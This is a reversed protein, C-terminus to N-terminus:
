CTQPLGTVARLGVQPAIAAIAVVPEQLEGIVRLHALEQRIRSEECTRRPIVGDCLRHRVCERFLDALEANSLGQLKLAELIARRLNNANRKGTAILSDTLEILLQHFLGIDGDLMEEGDREAKSRKGSVMANANRGMDNNGRVMGLGAAAAIDMGRCYSFAESFVGFNGESPDNNARIGISALRVDESTNKVSFKGDAASLHMSLSKRTDMFELCARSGVKEALRVCCEHTQRNCAQTPYFLEARAEDIALVREENKQIGVPYSAKEEFYWELYQELEPVTSYLPSFISMM